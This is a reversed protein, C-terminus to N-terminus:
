RCTISLNDKALELCAKHQKMRRAADGLSEGQVLSSVVVTNREARAEAEQPTERTVPVATFATVTVAVPVTAAPTFATVATAPVPLETGVPVAAEQQVGIRDNADPFLTKLYKSKVKFFKNQNDGVVVIFFEGKADRARLGAVTSLPFDVSAMTYDVSRFASNGQLTAKRVDIPQITTQRATDNLVVRHVSSSLSMGAGTLYAARSPLAIVHLLPARMEDTVDALSFPQMESRAHAANREIWQEPNYVLISYGTQACTRCAMASFFVQQQDNLILGIQHRSSNGVSIAQNVQDDTLQDQKTKVVLPSVMTVQQQTMAVTAMALVAIVVGRWSTRM